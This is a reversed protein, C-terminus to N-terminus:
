HTFSGTNTFPAVASFTLFFYTRSAASGQVSLCVVNKEGSRETGPECMKTNVTRRRPLIDYTWPTDDGRTSEDTEM